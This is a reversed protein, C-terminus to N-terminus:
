APGGKQSSAPVFWLCRGLADAVSEAAGHHYGGKFGTAERSQWGPLKPLDALRLPDVVARGAIYAYVTVTGEPIDALNRGRASPGGDQGPYMRDLQEWSSRTCPGAVSVGIGVHNNNGDPTILWAGGSEGDPAYRIETPTRYAGTLAQAARDIMEALGPAAPQDPRWGPAAEATM